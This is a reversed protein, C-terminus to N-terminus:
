KIKIRIQKRDKMFHYESSPEIPVPQKKREKKEKEIEFDKENGYQGQFKNM